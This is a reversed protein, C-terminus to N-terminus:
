CRAEMRSGGGTPATSPEFKARNPFWCRSGQGCTPNASSFVGVAHRPIRQWLDVKGTALALDPGEQVTVWKLEIGRRRAAEAMVAVTFGRPTGDAGITSYPPSHNVGIRVTRAPRGYLSITGSAIAGLVLVAVAIRVPHRRVRILARTNM